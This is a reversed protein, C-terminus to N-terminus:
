LNRYVIFCFLVFLCVSASQLAVLIYHQNKVLSTGDRTVYSDYRAQRDSDATPNQRWDPQPLASHLHRSQLGAVSPVAAHVDQVSRVHLGTRWHLRHGGSNVQDLFAMRVRWGKDGWYYPRHACVSVMDCVHHCHYPIDGLVHDQSTRSYVDGAEAVSFVAFSCHKLFTVENHIQLLGKQLSRGIHGIWTSKVYRESRSSRQPWRLTSSASNVHSQTRAKSGSSYAPSTCMSWAARVCALHSSHHMWRQKVTASAVCM